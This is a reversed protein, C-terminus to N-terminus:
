FNHRLSHITAEKPFGLLDCKTRFVIQINRTTLPKGKSFNQFLYDKPHYQRYYIRLLDLASKSLLTYREKNGKGDKVRIRM